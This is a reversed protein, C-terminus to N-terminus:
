RGCSEDSATVVEEGTTELMYAVPVTSSPRSFTFLEACVMLVIFLERANNPYRPFDQLSPRTAFRCAHRDYGCRRCAPPERYQDHSQVLFHCEREAAVQTVLCGKEPDCQEGRM